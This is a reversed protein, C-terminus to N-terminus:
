PFFLVHIRFGHQSAHVGVLVKKLVLVAYESKVVTELITLAEIVWEGGFVLHLCGKVSIGLMHISTHLHM